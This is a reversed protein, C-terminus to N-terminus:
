KILKLAERATIKKDGIFAIIFAKPFKSLVEKRIKEIKAFDTENGVTYKNL